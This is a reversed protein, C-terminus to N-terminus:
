ILGANQGLDVTFKRDKGGGGPRGPSLWGPGSPSLASRAGRRRGPPAASRPLAAALPVTSGLAAQLLTSPNM